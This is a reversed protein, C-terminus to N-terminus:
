ERKEIKALEAKKTLDAPVIECQSHGFFIETGVYGTRNGL